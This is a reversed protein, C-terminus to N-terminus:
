RSDASDPAASAFAAGACDARGGTGARLSNGRKERHEGGASQYHAAVGAGAGRRAVPWNWWRDLDARATGEEGGAIASLPPERSRAHERFRQEFSHKANSEVLDLFARKTGRQPTFIEVKHEARETLMTELLERDEFDASVHIAKPLYEAEM